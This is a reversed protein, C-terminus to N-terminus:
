DKGRFAADQGMAVAFCSIDRDTIIGLLKGDEMVPMSGIGLDKMKRAAQRLSARPSLCEVRTTMFQQVKM